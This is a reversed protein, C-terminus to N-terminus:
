PTAGTHVPHGPQRCWESWSGAYLTAGTLGAVEMALLNHCATVGSGCYCVVHAPDHHKLVNQWRQRLEDAPLFKGQADLNLAFTHNRAGPIHGAVPDLPEISGAYREPARADVLLSSPDHLSALLPTATTLMQSRPHAAFSRPAIDAVVQTVPLGTAIWAKYGGNLVAVHDHGLWRLMWWLRAAMAGHDADYVIVQITDDIGWRSFLARLTDVDPLPHRSSQTTVPGSLEQELDAHSAGPLHNAQWALKGAQPKGLEFRCDIIRIAPNDLQAALEAPEILTTWNSTNM